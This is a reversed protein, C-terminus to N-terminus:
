TRVRGMATWHRGGGTRSIAHLHDIVPFPSTVLAWGDDIVLPPALRGAHNLPRAFDRRAPNMTGMLFPNIIRVAGPWFKFAGNSLFPPGSFLM